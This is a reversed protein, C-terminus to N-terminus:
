AQSSYHKVTELSDVSPDLPVSVKLEFANYKELLKAIENAIEQLETINSEIKLKEM